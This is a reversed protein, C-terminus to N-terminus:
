KAILIGKKNHVKIKYHNELYNFNDSNLNEEQLDMWNPAVLANDFKAGKITSNKFNVEILDAETFNTNTLDSNEFNVIKLTAGKFTANKLNANMFNSEIIDTRSFNTNKLNAENFKTKHIFSKIFNSEEMRTHSLNLNKLDIGTISAKTLEAYEFNLLSALTQKTNQDIMKGLDINSELLSMLLYGREPSVPKTILTDKDLYKYPKLIKSMAIIRTSNAKSIKGNNRYGDTTVDKIMQDLVFLMSSRRDAEQLNTQQGLRENQGTILQNQNRLYYVQILLFLTPLVSTLILFVGIRTIRMFLASLLESVTNKSVSRKEELETFFDTIANKLNSGLFNASIKKTIRVRKAWKEKKRTDRNNLEAKLRKNEKELDNYDM